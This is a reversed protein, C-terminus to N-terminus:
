LVVALLYVLERPSVTLSITNRLHQNSLRFNDIMIGLGVATTTSRHATNVVRMICLVSYLSQPMHVIDFSAPLILISM